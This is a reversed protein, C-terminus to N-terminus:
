IVWLLLHYEMKYYFILLCQADVVDKRSLVRLQTQQKRGVGDGRTVRVADLLRFFM